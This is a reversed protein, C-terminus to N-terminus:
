LPDVDFYIRSTKTEKGSLVEASLHELHTRVAHLDETLPILFTLKYGAEVWKKRVPLPAPGFVSLAPHEQAREVMRSVLAYALHKDSSEVYADIMRAFPPYNVISRERLEHEFLQNYDRARFALMANQFESLYQIIMKKLRPAENECHCLLRYARENARFDHKMTLLDFQVFVILSVSRLLQRSIEYDSSLLIDAELADSPAGEGLVGIKAEPYIYRVEEALREIGTGGFTFSTGGCDPCARPVADHHGCFPCVITRSREFYRYTVKCQPCELSKGCGECTVYRAYGKRHLLLLSRAHGQINERLADMVEFSLLRGSVKNKKFSDNLSILELAVTKQPRGARLHLYAYRGEHALLQREVSPSATTMIAQIRHLRALVLAVNLANFRPAPEFQRYGSHEEDIIIVEKLTQFPLWVAKRLGIYLGSTGSLAQYWTDNRRHIPIDSHFPFLAAEGYYANLTPLLEQLAEQTPCLLLVQAGEQLREAILAYPVRQSIISSEVHALVMPADLHHAKIEESLPDSTLLENPPAHVDPELLVEQEEFIGLDRLKNIVSLGVGYREGLAALSVPHVTREQDESKAYAEYASIIQELVRIASRSRKLTERCHNVKTADLLLSTSIGWGKTVKPTPAMNQEGSVVIVGQHLLVLLHKFSIDPYVQKFQRLTFRKPLVSLASFLPDDGMEKIRMIDVGYYAEGDPRYAAPIMAKFVDGQSCMYYEAVWRLLAVSCHPLPPYPYVEIISKYSISADPPASLVEVVLGSYVKGHGFSVCVLRYLLGTATMGEPAKYTYRCRQTPLPLLVEVYLPPM